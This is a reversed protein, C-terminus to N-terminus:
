KYTLVSCPSCPHVLPFPAHTPKCAWSPGRDTTLLAADPDATGGSARPCLEKALWCMGCLRQGEEKCQTDVLGCGLWLLSLGWLTMGTLRLCLYLPHAKFRFLSFCGVNTLLLKFLMEENSLRARHQGNAPFTEVHADTASLPLFVANAAAHQTNGLHCLQGRQSCEQPFENPERLSLQEQGSGM